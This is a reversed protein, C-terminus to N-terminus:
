FTIIDYGEEIYKSMSPHGSMDGKLPLNNKEAFDFAGLKYACAKCVADIINLNKVKEWLSPFPKDASDLSPLLGTAAGEIVLKIDFGKEKMDISNLLVHIFCM